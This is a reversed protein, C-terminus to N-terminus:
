TSGSTYQLVCPADDPPVPPLGSGGSIPVDVDLVRVGDLHPLPTEALALKAGSDRIVAALRERHRAGKPPHGPVAIAGAHWCAFLSVVFSNGPEHLLLVPKGAAGAELLRVALAKARDSLERWTMRWEDTGGDALFVLATADPAADARGSLLEHLPCPTASAEQSTM